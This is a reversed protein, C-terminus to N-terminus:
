SYNMKILAICSFDPTLQSPMCQLGRGVGGAFIYVNQQCMNNRIWPCIKLLESTLNVTYKSKVNTFMQMRVQKFKVDWGM